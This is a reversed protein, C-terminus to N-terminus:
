KAQRISAAGSTKKSIESPEGYYKVRSAGSLDSSLKGSTSVYAKSAGSGDVTVTSAKLNKADLKSAGNMDVKLDSVNGDVEIKSAGSMDIELSEGKLNALSTKTVGSVKLREINPASIRITAKFSRFSSISFKKKKRITLVGDNVETKIFPLLNDDSEVEVAFDKQAVIEVKFIGSVQVASFDGVERKETIVNGSPKMKSGFDLNISVPSEHNSSGISFIYAAVTGVILAFIFVLIGIKKM